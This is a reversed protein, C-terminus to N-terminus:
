KINAQELEGRTHFGITRYIHLAKENKKDVFLVIRRYRQFLREVHASLVSRGFGRSRYGPLVYVSGIQCVDEFRANVGAMAVPMNDYLLATIEKQELRRKLVSCVKTSSIESPKVGLEEIEYQIQLPLLAESMDPAPEIGSCGTWHTLPSFEEKNMEMSFYERTKRITIGTIRFFIDLNEKEGFIISIHPFQFSLFQKIRNSIHRGISKLLFLHVYVGNKTHIVGVMNQKVRLCFNGSHRIKKEIGEFLYLNLSKEEKLFRICQLVDMRSKIDNIELERFLGM